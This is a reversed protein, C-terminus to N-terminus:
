MKPIGQIEGITIIKRFEHPHVVERMLGNLVTLVKANEEPVDVSLGTKIKIKGLYFVPLKM